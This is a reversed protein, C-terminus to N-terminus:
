KNGLGILDKQMMKLIYRKMDMPDVNELVMMEILFDIAENPDQIKFKSMLFEVQGETLQVSDSKMIM